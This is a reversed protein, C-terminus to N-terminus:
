AVASLGQTPEAKREVKGPEVGGLFALVRWILAKREGEVEGRIGLLSLM